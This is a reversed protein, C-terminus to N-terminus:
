GLRKRGHLSIGAVGEKHGASWLLWVLCVVAVALLLVTYQLFGDFREECRDFESKLHSFEDPIQEYDVQAAVGCEIVLTATEEQIVPTDSPAPTHSLEDMNRYVVHDGALFTVYYVNEVLTELQETETLNTHYVTTGDADLLRYRFWTNERKMGETVENLMAELQQREPYTLQEAQELELTYAVGRAIQNEREQLLVQFRSTEQWHQAEAYPLLSLVEFGLMGGFFASLILFLVVIGKVFANEQVRKM